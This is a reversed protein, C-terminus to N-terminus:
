PCLDRQFGLIVRFLIEQSECGVLNKRVVVEAAKLYMEQSCRAALVDLPADLMQYIGM